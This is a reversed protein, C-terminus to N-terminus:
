QLACAGSVGEVQRQWMPGMILGKAKGQRDACGLLLVLDAALDRTLMAICLLACCLLWMNGAHATGKTLLTESRGVSCSQPGPLRFGRAVPNCALLWGLGM